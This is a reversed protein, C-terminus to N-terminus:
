QLTDVYSSHHIIGHTSLYSGIISSYYEKRNNIRIIQIKAEFQIEVM